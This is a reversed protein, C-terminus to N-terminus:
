HMKIHFYQGLIWQKNPIQCAAFPLPPCHRLASLFDAMSLLNSCFSTPLLWLPLVLLWGHQSLQQCVFLSLFVKWSFCFTVHYTVHNIPYENKRTSTMGWPVLSLHEPVVTNYISTTWKINEGLIDQGLASPQWSEIRTNWSWTCYM